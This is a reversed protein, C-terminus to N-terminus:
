VYNFNSSGCGSNFKTMGVLWSNLFMILLEHLTNAKTLIFHNLTLTYRLLIVGYIYWVMYWVMGYWIILARM